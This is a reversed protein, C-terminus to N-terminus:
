AMMPLPMPCLRDGNALEIIRFRDKCNYYLRVRLCFVQPLHAQHQDGRHRPKERAGVKPSQEIIEGPCELRFARGIFCIRAHTRATNAPVAAACDKGEFGIRM